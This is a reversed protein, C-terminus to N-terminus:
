KEKRCKCKRYVGTRIIIKREEGCLKCIEVCPSKGFIINYNKNYKSKDRVRSWSGKVSM